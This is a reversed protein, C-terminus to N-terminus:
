WGLHHQKLKCRYQHALRTMQLSCLESHSSYKYLCLISCSQFPNEPQHIESENFYSTSDVKVSVTTSFQITVDSNRCISNLAKWKGPIRQHHVLLTLTRAVGHIWKCLVSLNSFSVSTFITVFMLTYNYQLSPPPRLFTQALKPPPLLYALRPPFCGGLQASTQLVLPQHGSKCLHLNQWFLCAKRLTWQAWRQKLETDDGKYCKEDNSWLGGRTWKNNPNISTFRKFCIPGPSLMSM